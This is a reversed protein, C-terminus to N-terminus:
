EGILIDPLIIETSNTDININIPDLEITAIKQHEKRINQIHQCTRVVIGFLTLVIVVKLTIKSM